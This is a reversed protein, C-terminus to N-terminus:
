EGQQALIKEINAAMAELRRDQQFKGNIFVTPTSAVSAKDAEALDDVIKQRHEHKTIAENYKEMDLGMDQALKKLQDPSINKRNEFIKDHMEWFKGQAQAAMAAEHAELSFNHGRNPLGKFVVKIKDPFKERLKEIEDTVKACHPCLFESFVVMTVPASEPGAAPSGAVKFSYVKNPDPKKPQRPQPRRPRLALKELREKLNDLRETLLTGDELVVRAEPLAGPESVAPAVVAEPAEGKAKEPDLLEEIFSTIMPLNDWRANEVKQGNIFATPTGRSGTPLLQKAQGEFLDKYKNTEVAERIAAGDMGKSEAFSVISDVNYTKQNAFLWDHMEWFKGQMNAAMAANAGICARKHFSRSLASNCENHLPFNMFVLRLDDPFKEILHDSSQAFKKCFPCEFESFVVLSLRANDPGKAAAGALDFDFTQSSRLSPKPKAAEVEQELRSVENELEKFVDALSTGEAAAARVEGPAPSKKTDAREGPPCGSALGIVVLALTVIYATKRM